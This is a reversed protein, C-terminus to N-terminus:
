QWRGTKKDDGFEIRWGASDWDSGAQHIDDMPYTSSRSGGGGRSNSFAGFVVFFDIKNKRVARIYTCHNPAGQGLVM